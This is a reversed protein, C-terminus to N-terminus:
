ERSIWKEPKTHDLYHPPNQTNNTLHSRKEPERIADIPENSFNNPSDTQPVLPDTQPVLPDTQPVLPDTKNRKREDNASVLLLLALPDFVTVLVGILLRAAKDTTTQEDNGYVIQALYKLPGVDVEKIRQIQNKTTRETKLALIQVSLSDIETSFRRRENRQTARLSIARRVTATDILLATVADDMQKLVQQNGEITQTAMAIRDDLLAVEDSGANVVASQEIHARSLYGFVGLTTILSLGVTAYLLYIRITKNTEKWTRMLKNATVIKALELVIGMVIISTAAGPFIAVLGVISFWAAVGSVALATLIQIWVFKM